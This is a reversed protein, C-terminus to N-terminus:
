EKKNKQIAKVIAAIAKFPLSIVWIVARVLYPLLPALIIVLLLLLAVGIILKSNCGEDLDNPPILGNVMDIPRSVAPIVTYKGERNFTLEIVDFDFFVSEWAM